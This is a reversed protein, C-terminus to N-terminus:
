KRINGILDEVQKLGMDTRFESRIPFHLQAAKRGKDTEFADELKRRVVSM